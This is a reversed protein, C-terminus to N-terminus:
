DEGKPKINKANFRPKFGIAPKAETNEAPKEEPPSDAQPEEKQESTAPKTLGAKFRPKFGVTPAPPNPMETNEVSKEPVSAPTEEKSEAPKTMGPKFRPKFGVNPTPASEELTQTITQEALPNAIHVKEEKIEPALRYILRLKNFWYKKTHDFSKEGMQDFHTRFESLLAPEAKGLAELDIKKKRFFDEFTM